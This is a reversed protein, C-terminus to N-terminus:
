TRKNITLFISYALIGSIVFCFIVCLLFLVFHDAATFVTGKVAFEGKKLANVGAYLMLPIVFILNGIAVLAEKLSYRVKTPNSEGQENRKELEITLLEFREPYSQKDITSIAQQLESKSYKVYDPTM